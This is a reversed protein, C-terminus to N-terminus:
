DYVEIQTWNEPIINVPYEKKVKFGLFYKPIYITKNENNNLWAGWWSFTSCSLICTNSNLIFQFDIIPSHTSFYSNKVYMFEKKIAMIDDSLFVTKKTLDLKKIASHYYEFPLSLDPGNLYDPGFTKYDKLRIHVINYQENSVTKDKIQNFKKIFKQKITFRKKIENENNFFYQEGQFYGYYWVNTTQENLLENSYDKSNDQLHEFKYKKLKNSIRFLIWKKANKKYDEKSLNFYNLDGLKSLCYETGKAKALSHACAYIFMQNGLQCHSHFALM